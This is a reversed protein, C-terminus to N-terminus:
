LVTDGAASGFAFRIVPVPAEAAQPEKRPFVGRLSGVAIECNDEEMALRLFTEDTMEPMKMTRRTQGDFGNGNKRVEVDM